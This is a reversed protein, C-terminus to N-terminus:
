LNWKKEEFLHPYHKILESIFLQYPVDDFNGYDHLYEMFQNGEPNYSQFVSDQTGDFELSEVKLRECLTKNFAPTAKVWKGELFLETFGHFVLVNTKLIEELKGTAIHNRVKAFGLRSPIGAVRACAALLCAKEVCYGYDRKLLSSAKMAEPSLDIDFPNYNFGDRVAYYIKVAKEIPDTTNGIIKKTFQIVEESDSNIYEAPQLYIENM